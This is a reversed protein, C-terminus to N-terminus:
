IAFKYFREGGVEGFYCCFILVNATLQILQRIIL